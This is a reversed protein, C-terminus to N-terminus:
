APSIHERTRGVNQRNAYAEAFMSISVTSVSNLHLLIRAVTFSIMLDKWVGLLITQDVIALNAIHM